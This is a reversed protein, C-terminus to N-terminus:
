VVLSKGLVDMDDDGRAERSSQRCAIHPLPNVAVRVPDSRPDNAHTPLISLAAPVGDITKAQARLPSNLCSPTYPHSHSIVRKPVFLTPTALRTASLLLRQRSSTEIGSCQGFRSYKHCFSASSSIRGVRIKACAPVVHEDCTRMEAKAKGGQSEVVIVDAGERGEGRVFDAVRVNFVSRIHFGQKQKRPRERERHSHEGSPKGYLRVVCSLADSISFSVYRSVV